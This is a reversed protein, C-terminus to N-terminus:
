TDGWFVGMGCVRLCFEGCCSLLLSLFCPFLVTECVCLCVFCQTMVNCKGNQWKAVAMAMIV